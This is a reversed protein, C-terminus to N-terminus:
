NDLRSIIHTHYDFIKKKENSNLIKEIFCNTNAGKIILYDALQYHKNIIAHELALNNSFHVDAGANLLTQVAPLFGIKSAYILTSNLQDPHAHYILCNLIELNEKKIVFRFSQETPKTHHALYFVLKAYNKQCAIELAQSLHKSGHSVLYDVTDLHNNRTAWLLAYDDYATVTAGQDILLIVITLHGNEAASRLACDGSSHVDAGHDILLKVVNLHGHYSARILAYDQDARPNAGKQILFEVIEAHGHSAALRLPCDGNISLNQKRKSLYCVIELFGHTCAWNLIKEHFTHVPIGIKTLMEYPKVEMLSWKKSIIIKNAQIHNGRHNVVLEPDDTPLEIEILFFGTQLHNLIQDAKYILFNGIIRKGNQNVFTTKITETPEFEENWNIIKYYM